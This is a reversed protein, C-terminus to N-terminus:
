CPEKKYSLISTCLHDMVELFKAGVYFSSYLHTPYFGDSWLWTTSVSAVSLDALTPSPAPVMHALRQAVSLDPGTLEAQLRARTFSLRSSRRFVSDVLGQGGGRGM